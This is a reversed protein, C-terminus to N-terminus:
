EAAYEELVAKKAEELPITVVGQPAYRPPILSYDSLTESVVLKYQRQERSLATDEVREIRLRNVYTEFYLFIVVVVVILFVVTGAMALGLVLTNAKAGHEVQPQGEAPTHQHWPDTTEHEHPLHQHKSM